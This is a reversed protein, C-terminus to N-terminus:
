FIIFNQHAEVHIFRLPMMSFSFYKPCIIYSEVEHSVHFLCMIKDYSLERYKLCQNGEVIQVNKWQLTSIKYKLTRYWPKPIIAGAWQGLASWIPSSSCSFNQIRSSPRPPNPPGASLISLYLFLSEQQCLGKLSPLSLATLYNPSRNWLTIGPCVNPFCLGPQSHYSSLNKLLCTLYHNELSSIGTRHRVHNSSIGSAWLVLHFGVKSLVSKQQLACECRGVCESSSSCHLGALEGYTCM